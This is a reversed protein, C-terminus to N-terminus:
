IRDGREEANKRMLDTLEQAKALSDDSIFRVDPTNRLQLRKGLERRVFPRAHELATM